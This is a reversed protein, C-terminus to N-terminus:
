KLGPEDVRRCGDRYLMKYTILRGVTCSISVGINFCDWVGNHNNRLRLIVPHSTDNPEIQERDRRAFSSLNNSSRRPQLDWIRRLPVM